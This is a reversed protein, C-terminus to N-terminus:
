EDKVPIAALLATVAASMPPIANDAALAAPCIPNILHKETMVFGPPLPLNVIALRKLRPTLNRLVFTAAVAYKASFGDTPSKAPPLKSLWIRREARCNHKLGLGPSLHRALRV